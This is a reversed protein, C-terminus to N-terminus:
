ISYSEYKGNEHEDLDPAVDIIKDLKDEKVHYLYFSGMSKDSYSYVIHKDEAKNSSTLVFDVEGLKAEINNMMKKTDDDFFHNERKWSIYSVGTIVKRLESYSVESLDFDPNEYLVKEEKQTNPNYIVAAMKDRGMNSITVLNQNDFTFFLPSMTNKFSTTLITTFEEQETDRYLLSTNVGDVIAMAVRLKGDHDTLWGQINGPNEALMTLEGTNINLRYPDFVQPNRKNLGVIIYDDIDSLEDIIQTRVNEFDTLGSFNSGDIDVGFLKYNEDGGTDKLYLIRTNNAWMFGSIDRATDSTLRISNDTGIEQIFINMRRKYPAKYAYYKGDPSLTFSVKEPKKFFDEVSYQKAPEIEKNQKCNTLLISTVLIVCLTLILKIKKMPKNKNNTQM